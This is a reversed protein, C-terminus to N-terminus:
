HIAKCSDATTQDPRGIVQVSDSVTDGSDVDTVTFAFDLARNNLACIVDLLTGGDPAVFDDMRTQQGFFTGSCAGADYTGAGPVTLDLYKPGDHGSAGDNPAAVVLGNEVVTISTVVSVQPGVGTLSAATWLHWGGQPGQVITAEDGDALPEYAIEGTGVAMALPADPCESGTSGTDTPEEGSCGAVLITWGLM